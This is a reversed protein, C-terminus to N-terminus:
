SRARPQTARLRRVLAPLELTNVVTDASQWGRRAQQVGFKMFDLEQIHHADTNILIQIGLERAKMALSDDIDLREPSSNIELLKNNAKIARLVKDLDLEYGPRKLLKRGTLHGICTVYPNEIARILRATQEAKGLAFRSHISAMVIDLQKLVSDEFDLEGDALIDVESGKFVRFGKLSANLKDIAKMQQRLRKEDLGNTIQLSKSHDTVALYSYGRARAARVMEELSHAGDSATTHAHLDGRIQDLQVLDPLTGNQAAEVEGRGERLEPPIWPLGRVEYWTEETSVAKRSAKVAGKVELLHAPSGTEEVMAAGMNAADAFRVRLLPGAALKCVILSETEESVEEVGGHKKLVKRAAPANGTQVVLALTGVTDKGRRVSGAIEVQRCGNAHTLLAQFHEALDRAEVWLVRRIGEIGQRVKCELTAGVASGVEGAQLKKRLDEVTDVRLSKTLRQAERVSIGIAEAIEATGPPLGRGLRQVSALTGSQVIEQIASGISAGIGPIKPLSQGGALLDSVKQPYSRLAEAATHYAKVKFRNVGEARLLEALQGLQAAIQNNSLAM